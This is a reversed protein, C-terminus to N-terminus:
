AKRRYIFQDVYMGIERVVDSDIVASSRGICLLALELRCGRESREKVMDLLARAADALETRTGGFTRAIIVISKLAPCPLSGASPSARLGTFLPFIPRVDKVFVNFDGIARFYSLFARWCQESPVAQSRHDASLHYTLQKVSDPCFTAMLDKFVTSCSFSDAMTSHPLTRAIQLEPRLRAIRTAEARFVMVSRDWSITLSFLSSLRSSRHRGTPLLCSLVRDDRPLPHGARACFIQSIPGDYLQIATEHPMDLHDLLFPIDHSCHDLYLHRLRPLAVRVALKKDGGHYGLCPGAHAVRLIELDPSHSLISLFQKMSPTWDPDMDRLELRRLTTFSLSTWSVLVGGLLLWRLSPFQGASPDFCFLPGGFLHSYGDTLLHLTRLNPCCFTFSTLFKALATGSHPDSLTLVLRRVVTAHQRILDSMQSGDSGKLPACDIDIDVLRGNALQLGLELLRLSPGPIIIVRWAPSLDAAARWLNSVHSLPLLGRLSAVRSKSDIAARTLIEALIELPLSELSTSPSSDDISGVPTGDLPM